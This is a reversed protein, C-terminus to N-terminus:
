NEAKKRKIKPASILAFGYIVFGIFLTIPTGVSLDEILMKLGAFILMPYVLLNLEYLKPKNSLWALIVASISLVITRFLALKKMEITAGEFAFNKSLVFIVLSSFGAITLILITFRPMQIKQENHIGLILHLIYVTVILALTFIFIPSIIFVSFETSIFSLISFKILQSFWAALFLYLASQISLTNFRYIYKTLIISIISLVGLSIIKVNESSLIWIAAVSLIFGMWSYYYFNIKAEPNLYKFAILYFCIAFITAFIGLIDYGFGSGHTISIAGILGIILALLSQFMGFISIQRKLYLTAVIFGSLYTIIYFVIIVLSFTISINSYRGILREPNSALSALFAITLNIFFSSIWPLIHWSKFYKFVLTSAGIILLFITYFEVKGTKFMLPISTALAAIVFFVYVSRLNRYASIILATITFGFLISITQIPTFVNLKTSAEFILPYAIIVSSIGHFSASLIDKKRAVRNAFILWILAYVLGIIAGITSAYTQAETFARLLFAGALVLFTRGIVSFIKIKSIGTFFKPNFSTSEYTENQVHSSTQDYTIHKEQELASIRSDINELRKLVEHLSNELDKIRKEM